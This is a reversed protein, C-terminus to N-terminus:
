KKIETNETALKKLIKLAVMEATEQKEAAHIGGVFAGKAFVV